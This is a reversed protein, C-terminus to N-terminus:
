WRTSDLEYVEVLSSNVKLIMERSVGNCMDTFFTFEYENTKGSASPVIENLRGYYWDNGYVVCYETGIVCSSPYVRDSFRCVGLSTGGTVKDLESDDIINNTNEIMM